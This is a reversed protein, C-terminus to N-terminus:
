LARVLTIRNNEHSISYNQFERARAYTRKRVQTRKEPKRSYQARSPPPNAARQSPRDCALWSDARTHRREAPSARLKDLLKVHSLHSKARNTRSSRSSM